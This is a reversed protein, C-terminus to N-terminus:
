TDMTGLSMYSREFGSTREAQAILGESFLRKVFKDALYESDMTVYVLSVGSESPAALKSKQYEDPDLHRPATSFPKM